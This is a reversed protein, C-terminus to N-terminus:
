HGPYVMECMALGYCCVQIILLRYRCKISSQSDLPIDPDLRPEIGGSGVKVRKM